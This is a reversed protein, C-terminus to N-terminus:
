APPTDDDSSATGADDRGPATDDPVPAAGPWADAGADVSTPTAEAADHRDTDGATPEDGTPEDSSVPESVVDGPEQGSAAAGTGDDPENSAGGIAAVSPAPESGVDDLSLVTVTDTAESAVEDDPESESATTSAVEEDLSEDTVVDTTAVPSVYATESNAAGSSAVDTEGQPEAVTEAGDDTSETVGPAAAVGVSTAPPPM